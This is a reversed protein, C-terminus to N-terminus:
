GAFNGPLFQEEIELLLNAPVQMDADLALVFTTAINTELIGYEWQARHNDFKRVIWSVNAYSRAISETQDTSGSDLVVVRSAWQLSDLTRAINPEENYTLVLPTVLEAVSM